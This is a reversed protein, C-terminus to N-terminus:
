LAMVGHRAFVDRVAQIQAETPPQVDELSYARHLDHWKAKGMQHFPLIDVREVGDGLSAVFAALGDVNAPDDTLGPVLVFRVWIPIKKDVLRRAFRLTPEIDHGTVTRYTEPLWSKIDLLVLDVDALMEDSAWDGMYGSTDLATHLGLEKCHRLIAASFAHQVLPEGGSVTVGGHMISLVRRYKAIEEAVQAVTMPEGNKLHWTEPNHCYRCRLACGTLFLVFRTGPGDQTGMTEWSHVFGTLLDGQGAQGAAEFGGTCADHCPLRDIGDSIDM